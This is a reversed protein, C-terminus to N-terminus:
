TGDILKHIDAINKLQRRVEKRIHICQEDTHTANLKEATVHGYENRLVKLSNEGDIGESLIDSLGRAAEVQRLISKLFYGKRYTSVDKPNAKIFDQIGEFNLLKIRENLEISRDLDAKLYRKIDFAINPKAKGGPILKFLDENQVLEGVFADFESVSDMLLGRVSNIKHEEKHMEDFISSAQDSLSERSTIIVSRGLIRAGGAAENLQQIASDTSSPEGASYFIIPRYITHTNRISNIIDAGSVSGMHLDVLIMDYTNESFSQEIRDIILLWFEDPDDRPGIKVEIDTYLTEIGVADNFASIKIKKDELTSIKDDICLVHYTLKM